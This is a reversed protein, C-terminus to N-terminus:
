RKCYFKFRKIEPRFNSYIYINIKIMKSIKSINTKRIFFTQFGMAIINAKFVLEFKAASLRGPIKLVEGAIPIRHVEKIQVGNSDIVEYNSDSVIPVRIWQSVPRGIPNYINLTFEKNNESVYCESINLGDCFIQKPVTKISEEKPLIINYTRNVVVKLAESASFIRQIYDSITNQPSTGTIADHHTMISIENKGESLFPENEPIRTMADLQKSIQLLNNTMREQRKLSPRSTFFGSWLPFYDRERIPFTKNTQHVAWLYCMPNSYFMNVEPHYEKVADMLKDLNTFYHEANKYKFDDGFTMLVQNTNGFDQNWHKALSVITEAKQRKNQNNM